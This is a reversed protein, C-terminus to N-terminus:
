KLTSIDGMGWGGWGWFSLETAEPSFHPKGDLFFMENPYYIILIRSIDVIFGASVTNEHEKRHM